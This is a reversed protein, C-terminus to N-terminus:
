LDECAAGAEVALELLDRNEEGIQPVERGPHLPGLRSFNHPIQVTVERLHLGGDSGLAPEHELEDAVLDLRDEAGRKTSGIVGISGDRGREVHATPQGIQVRAARLVTLVWQTVADADVTATHEGAVDAARL